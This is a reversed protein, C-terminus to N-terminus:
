FSKQNTKPNTFKDSGRNSESKRFCIKWTTTQLNDESIVQWQFAGDSIKIRSSPNINSKAGASLVFNLSASDTKFEKPLIVYYTKNEYDLITSDEFSGEVNVNWADANGMPIGNASASGLSVISASDMRYNRIQLAHLYMENTERNNDSFLLFGQDEGSRSVNWVYFRNSSIKNSGIFEGNLYKKLSGTGGDVTFVLRNWTNPAVFGHYIDEVGIKGEPNIYLDADNINITSTQFLAVYKGVASPPMLFDMIVTYSRDEVGYDEVPFNDYVMLGNLSDFAPAKMVIPDKGDILPLGFASCSKFTPLQKSSTNTYNLPRIQSGIGTAFLNGNFNWNGTTLADAYNSSINKCILRNAEWARDSEMGDVGMSVFDTLQTNDNVTFSWIKGGNSHVKTSFINWLSDGIYGYSVEFAICGLAICQKYFNNDYINEPYNGKSYWVWPTAPLQQRFAKALDITEISPMIRDARAKTVQLAKKMLAVDYDKCDLYLHADYKEAILIAEELTAIKAGSFQPGRWSGADMQQLEALTFDHIRGQRDTTRHIASEDHFLVYKGDKTKSIDVEAYKVGRKFTEKLGRLSNELYIRLDTRHMISTYKCNQFDTVPGSSQAFIKFNFIVALLLSYVSAKMRYISYFLHNTLDFKDFFTKLWNFGRSM